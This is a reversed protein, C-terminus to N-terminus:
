AVFPPPAHAPVSRSLIIELFSQGPPPGTAFALEEGSEAAPRFLDAVEIWAARIEFLKAAPAAVYAPLSPAVTGCCQLNQPSSPHDSAGGDSHCCAHAQQMSLSALACHNTLGMWALMSICAVMAAFLRGYGSRM